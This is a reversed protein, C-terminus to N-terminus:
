TGKFEISRKMVPSPSSSEDKYFSSDLVSVTSQQLESGSTMEAISHLLKDCRELLSRGGEMKSREAPFSPLLKQMRKRNLSLTVTEEEEDDSEYGCFGSDALSTPISHRTPTPPPPPPFVEDESDGSISTTIPQRTPPPPPSFLEDDSSISSSYDRRPTEDWKCPPSEPLNDEHTRLGCVLFSSVRHKFSRHPKKFPLPTAPQSDVFLPSPSLQIPNHPINSPHKSRCLKFSSTVRSIFGKFTM